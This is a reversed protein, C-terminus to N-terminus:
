FMLDLLRSAPRLTIIRIYAVVGVRSVLTRATSFENEIILVSMIDVTSRQELEELIKASDM